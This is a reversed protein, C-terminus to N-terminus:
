TADIARLSEYIKKYKVYDASFRQYEGKNPIYEESYRVLDHAIDVAKRGDLYSFVCSACGILEAEPIEPVQVPVGCMDAKMQNWPANRAQGGCARLARVPGVSQTLMEITERLAYGISEVVARGMEAAGHDAGLGYFVGHHFERDANARLGPFFWPFPHRASRIRQLMEVYDIKEQGTFRRFWEFLLGTSNLIGSVNWKEPAIHPLTRLRSDLCQNSTCYNLGESSGARDCVLGEQLTATGLLSMLFDSGAALCPVDTPLGLDAAVSKRVQGIREGPRAFPPFLNKDFEYALIDASSWIVEDFAKSPSATHLQGSLRFSIYEACSVVKKTKAFEAPQHQRFWALKPLFFSATDEQRLDRKDLWLLVSDFAQGKQDLPILTPGNGSFAVGSVNGREPLRGIARAFTHFLNEPTLRDFRGDPYVFPERAFSLLNGQSDIIAAKISSTGIDAVLCLDNDM